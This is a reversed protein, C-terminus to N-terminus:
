KYCNKLERTHYGNGVLTPGRVGPLISEGIFHKRPDRPHLIVHAASRMIKVAGSPVAAVVKLTKFVLYIKNCDTAM